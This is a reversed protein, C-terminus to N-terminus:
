PTLAATVNSKRTVLLDLAVLDYSPKSSSGLNVGFGEARLAGIVVGVCIVLEKAM